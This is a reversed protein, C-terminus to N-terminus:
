FVFTITVPLKFNWQSVMGTLCRIRAHLRQHKHVCVCVLVCVEFQVHIVPIQLLIINKRVRVPTVGMKSLVSHRRSSNRLIQLLSSSASFGYSISIVIGTLFLWSVRYLRSGPDKKTFQKQPLRGSPTAILSTKFIQYKKSNLRDVSLSSPNRSTYSASAFSCCLFIMM